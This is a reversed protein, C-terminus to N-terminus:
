SQKFMRRYESPSFTTWRKFQKSFHSGDRFGMRLAIQELTLTRDMLLLKSKRLKITTLYQRPSIGFSEKFIQACYSPHYGLEHAIQAIRRDTFDPNNNGSQEDVLSNIKGAIRSALRDYSLTDELLNSPPNALLRCISSILDLYISLSELGRASDPISRFEVIRKMSPYIVEWLPSGKRHVSEKLKYLSQRLEPDDVGFHICASTMGLNLDADCGHIENPKIFLIDGPHMEIKREALTFYQIGEEVMNLEFLSHEHLPFSWGGAVHHSHAGHIQFSFQDNKLRAFSISADEQHLKRKM